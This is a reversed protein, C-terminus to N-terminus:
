VRACEGVGIWTHAGVRRSFHLIYEGETVGEEGRM